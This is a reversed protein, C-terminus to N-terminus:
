SLSSQLHYASKIRAFCHDFSTTGASAEVYLNEFAVFGVKQAQHLAYQEWDGVVVNWRADIYCSNSTLQGHVIGNKHLFTMGEAVDNLISYRFVADLHYKGAHLIDQLRGKSPCINVLKWKNEHLSLGILRMVNPHNIKDKLRVLAVKASWQVTEPLLHTCIQRILYQEGSTVKIV